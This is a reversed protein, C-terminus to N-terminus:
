LARPGRSRPEQKTPRASPNSDATELSWQPLHQRTGDEAPSRGKDSLLPGPGARCEALCFAGATQGMQGQGLDPPCKPGPVTM